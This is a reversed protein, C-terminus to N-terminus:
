TSALSFVEELEQIGMVQLGLLNVNKFNLIFRVQLFNRFSVRLRLFLRNFIQIKSLSKFQISVLMLTKSFVNFGVSLLLM